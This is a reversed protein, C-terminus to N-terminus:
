VKSFSLDLQDHRCKYIHVQFYLDHLASVERLSPFPSSFSHLSHSSAVLPLKWLVFSWRCHVVVSMLVISVEDASVPCSKDRSGEESSKRKKTEGEAQSNSLSKREALIPSTFNVMDGTM